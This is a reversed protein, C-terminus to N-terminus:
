LQEEQRQTQAPVPVKWIRRGLSVIGFAAVPWILPLYEVVYQSKAEFIMHFLVGGLLILALLLQEETRKRFMAAACLMFGFYLIKVLRGEAFRFLTDFSDSYVLKTLDGPQAYPDVSKTIWVSMFPM